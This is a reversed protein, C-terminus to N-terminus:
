MCYYDACRKLVFIKCADQMELMTQNEFMMAAMGVDADGTQGFDFLCEVNDGCVEMLTSNNMLSTTLEDLFPPVHYPVSFNGVDEDPGYTFLSNADTVQGPINVSFKIHEVKRIM